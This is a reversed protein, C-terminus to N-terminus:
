ANINEEIKSPEIWIGDEKILEILEDVANDAHVSRKVVNQGRYLSIKDKGIGV